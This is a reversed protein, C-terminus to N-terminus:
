LIQHTNSKGYMDLANYAYWHCAHAAGYICLFNMKDVKTRKEHLWKAKEQTWFLKLPGFIVVDLGQYVHTAHSPYCLVHIQHNCAFLLFRLTYHSNHSDVLLLWTHGKAKAKRQEHFDKIYEIGIEGNTRGKKSYGLRSLNGTLSAKKLAYQYKHPRQLTRRIGSSM